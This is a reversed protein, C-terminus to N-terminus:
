LIRGNKSCQRLALSTKSEYLCSITCYWLRYCDLNSFRGLGFLKIFSLFFYCSILICDFLSYRKKNFFILFFDFVKEFDNVKPPKPM